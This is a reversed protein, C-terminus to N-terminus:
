LKGRDQAWQDVGLDHLRSLYTPTIQEVKVTVGYGRKGLRLRNRVYADEGPIEGVLEYPAYPYPRFRCSVRLRSVGPAPVAAETTHSVYVNRIRKVGEPGLRVFGTEVQPLVANGNGDIADVPTAAAAVQNGRNLAVLDRDLFMMSSLTALRGGYAADHGYGDSGWWVEEGDTSSPIAATMATNAFRYWARENLNCVLTFPRLDAPTTGDWTTLVSVFLLDLFVACTVYTGPRRNAYITRWLDAIGGQETLSRMTSGDSMYVGRPAAWVV